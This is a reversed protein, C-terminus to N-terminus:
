GGNDGNKNYVSLIFIVVILIFWTSFLYLVLNTSFMSMFPWGFLILGLAFLFIWIDRMM